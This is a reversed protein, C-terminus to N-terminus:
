KSIENFNVLLLYISYGGEKLITFSHSSAMISHDIPQQVPFMRKELHEGQGDVQQLSLLLAPCTTNLLVRM